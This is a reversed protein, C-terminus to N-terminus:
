KLEGAMLRESMEQASYVFSKVTELNAQPTVGHGLNVIHRGKPGHDLLLKKLKNQMLEKSSCLAIPDLNGQLVTDEGVIKRAKDLSVTWDVGLIPAGTKSLESLYSGSGKTFLVVPIQKLAFYTSIKKMPKFCFQRYDQTDLLGGWTDFVQVVKAGAEVQLELHEIIKNTLFDITNQSFTPDSWLLSKAKSFDKSGSGQVMYAFLTWPSGCFGILPINTPLRRVSAKIAEYVYSLSNKSNYDKLGCQPLPTKFQPGEGEVFNLEMGAAVPIVLIDSFIIAADVGLIEVPQCTVESAMEPSQCLTMFNGAKARVAKYDPLYRGAQRMFWVPRRSCQKGNITDLLLSSM